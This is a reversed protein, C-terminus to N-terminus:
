RTFLLIKNFIKDGRCFKTTAVHRVFDFQNSKTRCTAAVFNQRSSLIRILKGGFTSANVGPSKDSCGIAAILAHSKDSSQVCLAVQQLLLNSRNTVEHTGAKLKFVYVKSSNAYLENIIFPYLICQEECQSVNWKRNENFNWLWVVNHGTVVAICKESEEAIEQLLCTDWIWDSFSVKSVVQIESFCM